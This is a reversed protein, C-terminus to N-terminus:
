VKFATQLFAPHTDASNQCFTLRVSHSVVKSLEVLVQTQYFSDSIFTGDL